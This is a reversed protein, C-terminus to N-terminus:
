MKLDLLRHRNEELINRTFEKAIDSMVEGPVKELVDTIDKITVKNLRQLWINASKGRNKAAAEFADITFMPNEDTQKNYLASRAKTVYTKIKRNFDKTMLREERNSDSEHSGLSSAHDFTPALHYQKTTLDLVFGWNEHHRDTNAIWTDFMLYGIFVDIANEIGHITEWQIPLEVDKRMAVMVRLLTHKRQKYRQESKYRKVIHQLVENGLILGTGSPVFSPTIVGEKGRYRALKYEAHPLGILRCLECAILEAWNEGTGNRGVKFLYESGDLEWYWNDDRNSFWFKEKLGTPEQRSSEYKSIDEIKYFDLTKMEPKELKGLMLQNESIRQRGGPTKITKLKGDKIWTYVTQRSVHMIEAAQKITLLKNTGTELM